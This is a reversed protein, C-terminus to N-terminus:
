KQQSLAIFSFNPWFSTSLTSLYFNYVSKQIKSKKLFAAMELCFHGCKGYKRMFIAAMKFFILFEFFRRYNKNAVRLVENQGFKLKIASECCFYIAFVHFALKQTKFNRSGNKRLIRDNQRLIKCFWLFIGYKITKYSTAGPTVHILALFNCKLVTQKSNNLIKTM